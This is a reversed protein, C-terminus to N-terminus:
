QMITTDPGAASVSEGLSKALMEIDFGERRVRIDYYLLTFALVSLPATLAGAVGTVVGYATAASSSAGLYPNGVGPIALQFPFLIVRQVVSGLVAVLLYVVFIRLWNGAALARSRALANRMSMGELVYVQVVFAFWFGFLVGIVVGPLICLILGIYFILVALLIMLSLMLAKKGVAGFSGIITAPEGLYRRSIAWTMAAQLLAYMLLSLVGIVALGVFFSIISRIMVADPVQNMTGPKMGVLKMLSSGFMWRMMITNLPIYAIGAIGVLLAFNHKYIDFLEDFLDGYELPRLIRQAM